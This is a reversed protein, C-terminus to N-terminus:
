RVFRGCLATASPEDTKTILRTRGLGECEAQAPMGKERSFLPHIEAERATHALGQCEAMQTGASALARSLVSDFGFEEAEAIENKAPLSTLAHGHYIQPYHHFLDHSM